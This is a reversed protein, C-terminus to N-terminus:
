SAGAGGAGVPPRRELRVGPCPEPRYLATAGARRLARELPGPDPETWLAVVTGGHGAGALKAGPAGAALAAAILAENSPGSGGLDRQIAHNENMLAGLTPWDGELLAKKGAVGLRAVREYAEVVQPEGALWRERIPRHVADSAHRVGTFALVFPLAPVAEALPEVTAFPAKGVPADLAKGRFDVYGLGGFVCLYHDVYGCQVGLQTREVERAAEALAHRGLSRGQYALLAELLAVLLATSGALGSQLPIESALEIRLRPRDLGLFGLVARALDFLDGRPELDSLTAVSVEEDGRVLRGAAAPTLTVRARLPVTCALTTGGYQDSPNGILNARAPASCVWAAPSV